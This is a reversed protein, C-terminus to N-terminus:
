AGLHPHEDRTASRRPCDVHKVHKASSLPPHGRCLGCRQTHPCYRPRAEHFPRSAQSGLRLPPPALLEGRASQALVTWAQPRVDGPTALAQLPAGGALLPRAPVRPAAGVVPLRCLAALIAQPLYPPALSLLAGSWRPPPEPLRVSARTAYPRRFILSLAKRINSCM